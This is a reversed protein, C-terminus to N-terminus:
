TSKWSMRMVSLPPLWVLFCDVPPRPPPRSPPMRPLTRPPVRYDVLLCFLLLHNSSSFLLFAREHRNEHHDEKESHDREHRVQCSRDAIDPLHLRLDGAGVGEAHHAVHHVEQSIGDHADRGAVHQGTEAILLGGQDGDRHAEEANEDLEEGAHYAGERGVEDDIEETSEDAAEGDAHEVSHDIRHQLQQAAPAGVLVDLDAAAEVGQHTREGRHEDTCQDAGQRGLRLDGVDVRHQEDGHADEGSGEDGKEENGNVIGFHDLVLRDRLVRHM